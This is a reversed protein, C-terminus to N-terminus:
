ELGTDPLKRGEEAKAKDPDSDGSPVKQAPAHRSFVLNVRTGVDPVREENIEMGLREGEYPNCNVLGYQIVTSPDPWIGVLIGSLNAAYVRAGSKQNTHMFSGAFIWADQVDADGQEGEAQADAGDERSRLLSTLNVRKMKGEDEWEVEIKVRSNEQKLAKEWWLDILGARQPIPKLRALLLAAHVLEPKAETTFIAEHEFTDPRCVVYELIGSDLCVAAEIRVELTARDITVGPMKVETETVTFPKKEAGETGPQAPDGLATMAASWLVLGNLILARNDM